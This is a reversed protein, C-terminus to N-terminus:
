GTASAAATPAGDARPDEGHRNAGAEGRLFGNDIFVAITAAFLLWFGVANPLAADPDIIIGFHPAVFALLWVFNCAYGLWWPWGRDNFRKVTIATGPILMLVTWV